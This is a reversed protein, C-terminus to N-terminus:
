QSVPRYGRVGRELIQDVKNGFGALGKFVVQLYISRDTRLSNTGQFAPQNNQQFQGTFAPNDLYQRVMLRARLCCDDYELGGFGEVTRNDSVDYHWRAMVGLKQSIPWYFSLEAQEIDDQARRRFGMNFIHKNDGRYRVSAGLEQWRSQEYDWVENASVQWRPSLHATVEGALAASDPQSNTLLNNALSVRPDSFQEIQGVSVSFLERGNVASLFRSTVGLTIQDADGIRDLGVFRNSRFLQAYDLAISTSDFIPLNDQDEYGQRLYYIRPELTQTGNLGAFSFQRDFFLGADLSLYAVDRSPDTDAVTGAFVSDAYDLQYQSYRYGAEAAWFGAPKHQGVRVSPEIHLRSGEASTLGSLGTTNRQFDAWQANLGVSAISSGIPSQYNLLLQPAREYSETNLEDLRQFGQSLLRVQLKPSVFAVEAFRQLDVPNSVGLNSDVDRFYDSDSVRSFDVRTQVQGFQGFHDVAALWRDAPAFNSPLNAAGGQANNLAQFTRRDLVGNYLDDSPLIALDIASQQRSSLYRLEGELGVGRQTVVRPVITADLNPALNLYYPLALDLGDESSYGVAPTLLGTQRQDNVPVRLYPAYFVPVSKIKLVTGRTTAFVDGEQVELSKAVLSWGNNNPECRTFEGQKLLMSGDASQSMREGRGRLGADAFLMQVGELEVTGLGSAMEARDGQVVLNPQSIRVGQPFSLRQNPVDMEALSTVLRRQGLEISVNGQLRLDGEVQGSLQDLNARLLTEDRTKVSVGATPADFVALQYSGACQDLDSTSEGATLNSPLNSPVYYSAALDEFLTFPTARIVRSTAASASQLSLPESALCDKAAALDCTQGATIQAQLGLPCIASSALLAILTYKMGYM